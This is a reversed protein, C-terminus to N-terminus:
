EPMADTATDTSMQAIEFDDTHAIVSNEDLLIIGYAAPEEV